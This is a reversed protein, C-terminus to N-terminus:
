SAPPKASAKEDPFFLTWDFGLVRGIAKATPVSPNCEGTEYRHYVPQAIGVAQAVKKESLGKMRRISRLWERM